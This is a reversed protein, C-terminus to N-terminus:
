SIAQQIDQLLDEVNELGVSLRITNDSINMQKRVDEQFSGYITSAPHLILSRNDFLNTARKILKLKNLFSFCTEKSALDFTLMAGPLEGFQSNSLQHFNNNELGPYNVSVVQPVQTLKQALYLCNEAAKNFRLSLTELGMLQAHAVHPTMYAGLNRHIEKRLKTTFAADGFQKSFDALRPNKSWDFNAYDIILGGLNTAGGSIYKTSSVVEINVGFNKAKFACFPVITSDAILPTNKNKAITSLAKLNAVELQPNTIIELYVACTHEDINKEVETLNTLDCFRTEVGFAKLTSAFFSYTNGFLHPSTVINAGTYAISFFVNSIAAMGSNLATTSFAETLEMVRKEFYSVTPNTIRSYTHDSTKGVFADSMAEASDFEFASCEYIPFQLSNYTDKKPFPTHIARTEFNKKM